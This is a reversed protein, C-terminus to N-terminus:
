PEWAELVALGTATVRWVSGYEGDATITSIGGLTALKAIFDANSRAYDGKTTVPGNFHIHKLVRFDEDLTNDLLGQFSPLLEDVINFYRM